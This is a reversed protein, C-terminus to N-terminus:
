CRAITVRWVEYEYSSFIVTNFDFISPEESFRMVAVLEGDTYLGWWEREYM